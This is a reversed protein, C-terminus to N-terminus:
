FEENEYLFKTGGILNRNSSTSQIYVEYEEFFKPRIKGREGFPLGIFNRAESGTFMDGTTKNRLVVEKAEQVMEPKMFQYFGRGKRFRIGTSEVFSKIDVKELIRLIQFRAPPVPILGSSDSRTYKTDIYEVNTDLDKFLNVLNRNMKFTSVLEDRYEDLRGVQHYCVAIITEVADAFQNLNLKKGNSIHAVENYFSTSRSNGLAQIAYINVGINALNRAEERWDYHFVNGGWKYGVNHPTADAIFMFARNEAQWDFNQAVNFVYEYFEEGDGGNTNPATEVFLKLAQKDSTFNIKYLAKIGDYYDGHAIIGVRLDPITSFLKDLSETVRLRVERICPSMSGTTDFSILIDTSM